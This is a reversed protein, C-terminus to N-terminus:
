MTRVDASLTIPSFTASRVLRTRIVTCSSMRASNTIRDIVCRTLPECDSADVVGNVPPPPKEASAAPAATAAYENRPNSAM